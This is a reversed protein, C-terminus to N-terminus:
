APAVHSSDFISFLEERSRVPHRSLWTGLGELDALGTDAFRALCAALRLDGPGCRLMRVCARWDELSLTKVAGASVIMGLGGVPWVALPFEAHGHARPARLPTSLVGGRSSKKSAPLSAHGIGAQLLAARAEPLFGGTVRFGYPLSADRVVECWSGVGHIAAVGCRRGPRARCWPTRPRQPWRAVKNRVKLPVWCQGSADCDGFPIVSPQGFFHRADPDFESLVDRLRHLNLFTDDDALVYWDAPAAKVLYLLAPVFRAEGLNNHLPDDALQVDDPIYITSLNVDSRNSFFMHTENALWTKRALALLGHNNGHSVIGVSLTPQRAVVGWAQIACMLHILLKM